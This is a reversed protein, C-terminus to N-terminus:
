LATAQCSCRPVLRFLAYRARIRSDSETRAARVFLASAFQLMHQSTAWLYPADVKWSASTLSAVMASFQSLRSGSWVTHKPIWPVSQVLTYV